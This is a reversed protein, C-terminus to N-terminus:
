CCEACLSWRQVGSPLLLLSFSNPSRPSGVTLPPPPLLTVNLSPPVFSHSALSPHRFARHSDRSPLIQPSGFIRLVPKITCDLWCHAKFCLTPTTLFPFSIRLTPPHCRPSTTPHRTGQTMRRWGPTPRTCEAQSSM